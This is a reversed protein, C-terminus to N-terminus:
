NWQLQERLRVVEGIITLTPAHIQHETVKSAIDALSGVVVKQEPTTGKSILAVPMDPRQGHAILQECIRELGVLGMYLVLTQNEYVLENWPLEPSGEKLHGTLFRVSQAYDRHTLPIGAYASCGSAATIGPVVQFPVGAQFLEQIEEGGRGFIFPDGGKLRCVRKGKKAYDVLLANIGDQPVSHNSRAKGVYIKIADRRCLELIPASVLRDYIVVDAQQMLRLAKLTILEPDGPGAGVLYVEGKPAKWEQLAQELMSDAVDLNDNFVQEKLPSAYLNEWFIRREDPNSIKEKVQNRWKGSFEALKGMGHPISTELQTRIQRSLVPSTGNSAVSVILPSRDIIAPVMFRCHPIDDVSNVLLNRAECQEFVTKNVEADNTAAIVLRYPTSLFKEAFAEIFPEGGTTKILQLLQDEIAPAVVDIIAGAKALLTAKRLAIHGGGVILCRQQQLKLSIPFIDM